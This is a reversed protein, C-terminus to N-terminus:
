RSLLFMGTIIFVMGAVQSYGISESFFVYSMLMAIVITGSVIVPIALSAPVPASLGTGAFLYLYGIEAAGICIGAIAAWWYTQPSLGFNQDGRFVLYVLFALSIVFASAQLCLTALVTSTAAAPVHDGSLKIFINYGAYLITVIGLLVLSLVTNEGHSFEETQWDFFYRGPAPIYINKIHPVSVQNCRPYGSIGTEM